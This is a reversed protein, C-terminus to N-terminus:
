RVADSSTWVDAESGVAVYNGNGYTVSTLLSNSGINRLTWKTGDPSTLITANAGVAVFQNELYVVKFLTHEFLPPRVRWITDLSDAHLLCGTLAFFLMRAFNVM